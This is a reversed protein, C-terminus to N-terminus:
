RKGSRHIFPVPGIDLPPPLFSQGKNVDSPSDPRVVSTPRVRSPPYPSAGVDGAVKASFFGPPSNGNLLFAPPGGGPATRRILAIRNGRRPGAMSAVTLASSRADSIPTPGAGYRVRVTNYQDISRVLSCALSLIEMVYIDKLQINEFMKM